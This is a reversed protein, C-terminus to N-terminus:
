ASGNVSEQDIKGELEMGCIKLIDYGYKKTYRTENFRHKQLYDNWPTLKFEFDNDEDKINVRYEEPSGFFRYDGDNLMPKLEGKKGDHRVEFDSKKLLLPDKMEQGDYWWAAIMGNFKMPNDHQSPLQKISWDKDMVKIHDTYKTSWLIMLQKTRNPREPDRVFFVWWWWYWSLNEIMDDTNLVWINSYPKKESSQPADMEEALFFSNSFSKSALLM